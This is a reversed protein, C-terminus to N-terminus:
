LSFRPSVSVGTLGETFGLLFLFTSCSFLGAPDSSLCWSLLCSPSQSGFCLSAIVSAPSPFSLLYFLLSLFVNWVNRFDLDAKGWVSRSSTFGTQHWNLSLQVKKRRLHRKAGDEAPSGFELVCLGEDQSGGVQLYSLFLKLAEGPVSVVIWLLFLSGLVSDPVSLSVNETQKESLFPSILLLFCIPPLM